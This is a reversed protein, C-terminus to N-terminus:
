KPALFRDLKSKIELGILEGIGLRGRAQGVKLVSKIHDKPVHPQESPPKRVLSVCHAPCTSVCLGCGICRDRDLAAKKGSLRIAEMQCRRACTGCGNCADADLRAIFASSVIRAPKPDRKLARLVGCCCGCCTCLFVSQKANNPQLVLGKEDARQLVELTEALSISRGRGSQVLYDAVPGLALCSEEPKNCGKGLVRMGQRCICNAVAYRTHARVLEEAKEYPMVDHHFAISKHVPITRLQPAKRWQEPKLFASEYELADEVLGPTLRNVQAEWFGVVYQLAMYRPADGEQQIRLILGRKDMGDLRGGAESVPIGARRAIVRAEEPIITLHVALEADEPTFLRRLIRIEVGSATRPFGAPLRDLHAALADYVDRAM